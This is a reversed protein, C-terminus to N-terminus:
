VKEPIIKIFRKKGIKIIYERNDSLEMNIDTVKEGDVSVAGQRILRIAESSSNTMDSALIIHPLWMKDKNWKVRFEPIEDLLGKDRFVNEFEKQARIASEKNYFREVIESGLRKKMDMPHLDGDIIGKKLYALEDFTIDSLLEYYKIMLEDSLSMIKGFMERPSEDIGIYNGLSKSMKQIGDTGELIPMTIIVQPEQGYDRQLERGVLLNFKQDTGGLEIDARLMVSDYGQILPYLFEHINIPQQNKYRKYFDDRELM